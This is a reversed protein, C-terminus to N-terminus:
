LSPGLLSAPRPPAISLGGSPHCAVCAMAVPLANREMWEISAPSKRPCRATEHDPDTERGLQVVAFCCAAGGLAAALVALGRRTRTPISALPASRRSLRAASQRAIATAAAVPVTAVQPPSDSFLAIAPALTDAMARCRPCGDLHAALRPNRAGSATTLQDFADDCTM